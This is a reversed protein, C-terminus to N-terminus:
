LGFASPEFGEGAVLVVDLLIWPCGFALLFAPKKIEGNDSSTCCLENVDPAVPPFIPLVHIASPKNGKAGCNPPLTTASAILNSAVPEPVGRVALQASGTLAM